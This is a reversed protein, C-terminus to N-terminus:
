FVSVIPKKFQRTLIERLRLRARLLWVEVAQCSRNVIQAIQEVSIEEIDRLVFVARCMPSLSRLADELIGTTQEKSYREQYDDDWVSIERVFLEECPDENDTLNGDLKAFAAGIAIRLLWVRFQQDEPCEHLDSCAKRFAEVLVDEADKGSQTIYKAIRFIRHGFMRVLEFFAHDNGAKASRVWSAEAPSLLITTTSM